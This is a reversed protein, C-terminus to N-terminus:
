AAADLTLVEFEDYKALQTTSRRYNSLLRSAVSEAIVANLSKTLLDRLQTSPGFSPDFVLLSRSGNNSREFGVITMSHGPQQFYIPARRTKQVKSREETAGPLFYTEAFDLLQEHARTSRTHSFAHVSHPINLHECISAVEPTGIWKRTNLIGGTEQRALSRASNDWAEEIMEQLRLVGPIRKGFRDHNTAQVAQMYSVLMQVNRYGCFQTQKPAKFVHQVGPHCLYARRLGASTECLRAIVPILGPVENEVLREICLQGNRGIRNVRRMPEGIRLRKLMYEPMRKEFAYPGLERKGLRRGRPTEEASSRADKKDPFRSGQDVHRSIKTSGQVLPQGISGHKYEPGTSTGPAADSPSNLSSHADMHEDFEVVHVFDECEPCEAYPFEDDASNATTKKGAQSQEGHSNISASRNRTNALVQEEERQLALASKLDQDKVTFESDSTHQLEIHATIQYEAQDGNPTHFGCLFPCDM